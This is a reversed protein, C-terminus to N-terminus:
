PYSCNVGNITAQFSTAAGFQNRVINFIRGSYSESTSTCSLQFNFAIVRGLNDYQINSLSSSFSNCPSKFLIDPEGDSISLQDCVSEKASAPNDDGCSLYSTAVCLLLIPIGKALFSILKRKM